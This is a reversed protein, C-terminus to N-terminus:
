RLSNLLAAAASLLADGDEPPLTGTEVWENVQNIFAGIRGTDGAGTLKLKALLANQQGGGLYELSTVLARLDDVQQQGSLVSISVTAPTTSAGDSATVTLTESGNYNLVGRYTLSALSANLDVVSGSLTVLGSGNDEVTLGTTDALTVTGHDVDLTVTLSDGDVDGVSIGGIPKAVDELAIQAGPVTLTPTENSQLESLVINDVEIGHSHTGRHDVFIHVANLTAHREDDLPFRPTEVFGEGYDFIGWVQNAVGDLVIGLKVAQNFGGSAFFSGGGVGGSVFRWGEGFTQDVTWLVRHGFDPGFPQLSIEQNHVGSPAYADYHLTTVTDTNMPVLHEAMNQQGLGTAARGNMVQSPLFAGATVTVTSPGTIPFSPDLLGTWGNQGVLNSGTAYSEFNESFIIVDAAFLVRHEM